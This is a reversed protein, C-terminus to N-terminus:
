AAKIVPHDLSNAAYELAADIDEAELYPYESLIQSRDEGAALLGLIDSVRIRMGRICPRGGCTGPNTTIRNRLAERSIRQQRGSGHVTDAALVSIRLLRNPAKGYRGFLQQLKELLEGYLPTDPRVEEFWRSLVRETVRGDRQKHTRLYTRATNGSYGIFKSPAFSWAGRADRYAYWARAYAMIEALERNKALEESFRRINERAEESSAILGAAM